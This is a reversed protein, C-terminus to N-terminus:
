LFYSNLPPLPKLAGLASCPPLLNFYKPKYFMWPGSSWYGFGFGEKYNFIVDHYALLRFLKTHFTIM